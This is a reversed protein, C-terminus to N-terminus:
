RHPKDDLPMMGSLTSDFNLIKKDSQPIMFIVSPRLAAGTFCADINEMEVPTTPPASASASASASPFRDHLRKPWLDQTCLKASLAPSAPRKSPWQVLHPISIRYASLGHSIRYKSQIMSAAIQATQSLWIIARSLVRATSLLSPGDKSVSPRVLTVSKPRHRRNFIKSRRSQFFVVRSITLVQTKTHFNEVDHTSSTPPLLPRREKRHHSTPNHRRRRLRPRHMNAGDAMDRMFTLSCLLLNRDVFRLQKRVVASSM